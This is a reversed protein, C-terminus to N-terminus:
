SVLFSPYKWLFLFMITQFKSYSLWKDKRYTSINHIHM